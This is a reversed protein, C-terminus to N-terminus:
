ILEMEYGAERLVRVIETIHSGGRTELELEVRTVCIPLDRAHRDHFIHLVNAKLGAIRTLLKALDPFMKWAYGFDCSGSM